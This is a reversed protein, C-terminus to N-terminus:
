IFQTGQHYDDTEGELYTKGFVIKLLVLKSAFSHNRLSPMEPM